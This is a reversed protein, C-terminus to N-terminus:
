RLPWSNAMYHEIMPLFHTAQKHHKLPGQFLFKMGEVPKLYERREIPFQRQLESFWSPIEGELYKMELIVKDGRGIPEELPYKWSDYDFITRNVHHYQVDWDLSLRDSKSQFALRKYIVLLIPNLGFSFVTERTEQYLDRFADRDM